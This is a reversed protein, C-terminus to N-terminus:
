GFLLFVVWVNSVLSSPPPALACTSLHVYAKHRAFRMNGNFFRRVQVPIRAGEPPRAPCALLTFLSFCSQLKLANRTRLTRATRRLSNISANANAQPCPKPYISMRLSDSGQICAEYGHTYLAGFTRTSSNCTNESIAISGRIVPLRGCPLSSSSRRIM